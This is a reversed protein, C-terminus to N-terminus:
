SLEVPMSTGVFIVNDGPVSVIDDPRGDPTYTEVRLSGPVVDRGIVEGVIWTDEVLGMKVWDGVAFAHSTKAAMTTDKTHTMMELDEPPAEDNARHPEESDHLM